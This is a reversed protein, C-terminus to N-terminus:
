VMSLAYSIPTGQKHIHVEGLLDQKFRFPARDVHGLLGCCPLYFEKLFSGYFKRYKGNLHRRM